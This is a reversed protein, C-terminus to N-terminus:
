DAPNEQRNKIKICLLHSGRLCVGATEHRRKEFFSAIGGPIAYLLSHFSLSATQRWFPMGPLFRPLGAGARRDNRKFPLHGHAKAPWLLRREISCTERCCTSARKGFRAFEGPAYWFLLPQISGASRGLDLFNASRGATASARQGYFPCAAFVM